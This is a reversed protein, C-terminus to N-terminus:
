RSLPSRAVLAIDPLGFRDRAACCNGFLDRRRLVKFVQVRFDPYPDLDGLVIREPPDDPHNTESRDRRESANSGEQGPDM